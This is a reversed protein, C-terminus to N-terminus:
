AHTEGATEMVQARTISGVRLVTIDGTADVVTSPSAGTTPGGDIYLGVDNGFQSMAEEITTAPEHRHKNASSVALPGTARLLGRLLEHDPVRLGLTGVSSALSLDLRLAPLILTLAGPWFKEAVRRVPDSVMTVLKWADEIEAVLIPPPFADSRGKLKQLTAVSGPSNSRTAIGYVTDTPLVICGGADLVSTVRPILTPDGFNLVTADGSSQPADISM